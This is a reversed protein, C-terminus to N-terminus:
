ARRRYAERRAAAAQVIQRRQAKAASGWACIEAIDRFCGLCVDDDDLTCVRICPSEIPADLGAPDTSRTAM